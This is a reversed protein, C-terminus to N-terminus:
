TTCDEYGNGEIRLRGAEDLRAVAIVCDDGKKAFMSVEQDLADGGTTVKLEYQGPDEVPQDIVVASEGSVLEEVEFVQTDAENVIKVGFVVAEDTLNELELKSLALGARQDQM